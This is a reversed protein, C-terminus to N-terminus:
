REVIHENNVIIHGEIKAFNANPSAALTRAVIPKFREVLMNPLVKPM